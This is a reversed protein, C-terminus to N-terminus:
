ETESIVRQRALCWLNICVLAAISICLLNWRENYELRAVAIHLKKRTSIDVM